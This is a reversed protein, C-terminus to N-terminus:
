LPVGSVNNNRKEDKEREEEELRELELQTVCFWAVKALHAESRDGNLWKWLHKAAHRARAMQYNEDGVGNKWNNREYGSQIGEDFIEGIRYLSYVPIMDIGPIHKGSKAKKEPKEADRLAIVDAPRILWTDLGTTAGKLMEATGLEIEKYKRALTEVIKSTPLQESALFDFKKTEAMTARHMATYDCKPTEEMEPERQTQDYDNLPMKVSGKRAM